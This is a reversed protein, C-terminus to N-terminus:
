LESYKMESNQHVDKWYNMNMHLNKKFFFLISLTRHNLIRNIICTIYFFDGM